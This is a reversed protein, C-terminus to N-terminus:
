AQNESEDQRLARLLSRLMEMAIRQEHKECALLERCFQDQEVTLPVRDPFVVLDASIDLAHVLRYFVEYTPYRQNNEVAIITRASVDIKEALATQSLRKTERASRLIDGIRMMDNHM